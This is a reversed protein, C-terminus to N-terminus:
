DRGPNSSTDDHENGVVIVMVGRAGGFTQKLSPYNNGVRHSIEKRVSVPLKNLIIHSVLMFGPTNEEFFDLGYSTKLELLDAQVEALYHKVSLFEHDHKLSTNLIQKFIESIIFPINWFEKNLM